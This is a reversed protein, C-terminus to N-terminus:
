IAGLYSKSSEFDGFLFLYDLYAAEMETAAEALLCRDAYESTAMFNKISLELATLRDIWLREHAANFKFLDKEIPTQTLAEFAVEIDYCMPIFEPWEFLDLMPDNIIQVAIDITAELEWVKDLYYRIGERWRFDMIEYRAHDLQIFVRLSDKDEIACFAEKLWADVMQFSAPGNHYSMAHKNFEISLKKWTRDLVLMAKQANELEGLHAYYLVPIFAQDFAVMSSKFHDTNCSNVIFIFPLIFFYNLMKRM